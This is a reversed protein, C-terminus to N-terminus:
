PQYSVSFYFAKDQANNGRDSLDIFPAAYDLRMVFHRLPEFILGIGAGSLFNQNPVKNPNSSQNWVAGLDIFPALQLTPYGTEDHIIAIRDELSLRFGNDGSRANQRFGRLSQGGGIVFQQSPLLSDPSLQLDAQAIFLQNKGLQQVRQAQGLWSFFSGDPISGSNSTADFINLGFNFQSQLAWAGQLDRKVYDQGFKLVRTRSNGNADPGIGFPFGQNNFLFTQGDQYSFGLSLAFEERPSRVLPQRYSLEYLDNSGRIKFRSFAPDTIRDKSPAARLQITGNMPNIPIRYNFDFVDAGDTTSHEYSGTLEDANGTLNRDGLLLGLRESGVPPPSYNDVNFASEFSSAEKVRVQLISKGEQTGPQLSAEVDAFLPDAKLLRLQDELKDAQLPKTVGLELRRRIYSQKVRRTGKVEIRELSGEEVQIQVVGDVIEQTGLIARSTLYGHLLYLETIADAVGQLEKLSVSRGEYPQTIALIDASKLVTNGKVAIKRVQISEDSPTTPTPVPTPQNPLLPKQESPSLPRPPPLPQPFKNQNPISGPAVPPAALNQALSAKPFGLFLFFYAIVLSNLTLFRYSVFLEFLQNM